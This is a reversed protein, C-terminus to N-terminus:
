SECYIDLIYRGSISLRWWHILAAFISICAIVCPSHHVNIWRWIWKALSSEPWQVCRWPLPATLHNLSTAWWRAASTEKYSTLNEPSKTVYFITLKKNVDRPLLRSFENGERHSLCFFGRHRIDLRQPERLSWCTKIWFNSIELCVQCPIQQLSGDQNSFFSV